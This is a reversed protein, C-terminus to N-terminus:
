GPEGESVGHDHLVVAPEPEPRGILFGQLEACGMQRLAAMQEPQEVGEATVPLGLAQGLNLVARVIALSRADYDMREVFSRDIKLRDFRFRQLTGLSSWGTGFDDLAVSVGLAKLADFTELARSENGILASETVEIELRDPALGTERLIGSVTDVFDLSDLQVPSVNVAVRIFPPWFRQARRCAETMVWRGLEHIFGTAEAVAIFTTPSVAPRDPPQWRALAEFGLTNGSRAEVFPQYAVHFEGAALALSMEERRQSNAGVALVGVEPQGGREARAALRARKMAEEALHLLAESVRGQDPFVSSGLSVSPTFLRGSVTMPAKVAARIRGMLKELEAGQRLDGVVVGFTDGHLRALMDGGRVQRAIRRAVQTLVKDGIVTGHAKNIAMFGDVDIVVVAGRRGLRTAQAVVSDLRSLFQTRNFLGTLEDREAHYRAKAEIERFETVDSVHTVVFPRVGDKTALQILRRSTLVVRLGGHRDPLVDESVAVEGSSFAVDDAVFFLPHTGSWGTGSLLEAATAEFMRCLAQNVIVTRREADTVFIPSPLADLVAQFNEPTFLQRDDLAGAPM